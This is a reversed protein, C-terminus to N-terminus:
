KLVPSLNTNIWAWENKAFCLLLQKDDWCGLNFSKIIKDGKQFHFEDRLHVHGSIIVDFHREDYVKLAHAHIVNAIQEEDRKSNTYTRSTRSAWRGIAAVLFGPLYLIIMTVPWTRLLWRLFIYGRDNPDMEDGHEVRIVTDDFMFIEPEDYVKAGVKKEWFKKLHLDHNGEFYHLKGGNKTFKSLEDILPKFKDAFYSHGGLWLDFVDGVLFLTTDSAKPQLSILFRLLVQAKDGQMSNVHLDSIFYVNSM